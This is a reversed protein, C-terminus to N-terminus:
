TLENEQLLMRFYDGYSSAQMDQALDPLQDLTIFGM